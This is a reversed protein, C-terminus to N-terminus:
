FEETQGMRDLVILQYPLPARKQAEALVAREFPSIVGEEAQALHYIVVTSPAIQEIVAQGMPNLYFLPNVFMVDVKEGALATEFWKPIHDSDGTFLLSKGDFNLLLSCSQVNRFQAGMHRMGAVTLKAEGLTTKYSEGDAIVPAITEVGTFEAYEKLAALRGGGQAPVVIGQVRNNQLYTQTLGAMFHDIHEHTFLLYDIDALEGSGCLMQGLLTQPVGNFELDDNTHIGDILYRLGKYELLVGANAILTLKVKELFTVPREDASFCLTNYWM